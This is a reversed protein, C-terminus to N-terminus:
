EIGNTDLLEGDNRVALRNLMTTEVDFSVSHVSGDAFVTHFGSPHASGFYYIHLSNGQGFM